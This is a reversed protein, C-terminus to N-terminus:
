MESRLILAVEDLTQVAELHALMEADFTSKLRLNQMGDANQWQV